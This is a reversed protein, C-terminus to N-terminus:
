LSPIILYPRVGGPRSPRLTGGAQYWGLGAWAKQVAQPSCQALVFLNATWTLIHLCEEVTTFLPASSTVSEFCSKSSMLAFEPNVPNQLLGFHLYGFLSCSLFLHLSVPQLFCHFIQWVPSSACFAFIMGSISRIAKLFV